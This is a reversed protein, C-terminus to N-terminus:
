GQGKMTELTSHFKALDEPSAVGEPMNVQPPLAGPVSSAPPVVPAAPAPQPQPQVIAPPPQQIAPPVQQVPPAPAPGPAGAPPAPPQAFQQGPVQSVPPPVPNHQAQPPQGQPAVPPQAQPPMGQPAGPPPAQPPQYGQPVGTPPAQPPQYGQPAGPQQPYGQPYGQPQPSPAQPYGPQQYQQPPNQGYAPAQMAGMKAVANGMELHEDSVCEEYRTERLAYGVAQWSFAEALNEIVDEVRIDLLLQDWPKWMNRCYELDLPCPQQSARVSYEWGQQSNGQNDNGKQYKSLELIHGGQSSVIDLMRRDKMDRQLQNSAGIPLMAVCNSKWGPQGTGPDIIPQGALQRIVCQFLFIDKPFACVGKRYSKWYGNNWKGCWGVWERPISRISAAGQQGLQQIELEAEKLLNNLNKMFVRAVSWDDQIEAGERTLWTETLFSSMKTGVKYLMEVQTCWPGFVEDFEADPEPTPNIPIDETGDEPNFSPLVRFETHGVARGNQTPIYPDVFDYGMEPRLIHYTKPRDAPAAAQHRRRGRRFSM